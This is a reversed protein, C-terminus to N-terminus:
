PRRFYVAIASFSSTSAQLAASMSTRWIRCSSYEETITSSTESCSPIDVYHATVTFLLLYCYIDWFAVQHGVGSHNIICKCFYLSVGLRAGPNKWQFAGGGADRLGTRFGPSKMHFPSLFCLFGRSIGVVRGAQDSPLM